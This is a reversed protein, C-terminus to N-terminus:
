NEFYGKVLGCVCLCVLEGGGMRVLLRNSIGVQYRSSRYISWELLFCTNGFAMLDFVAM